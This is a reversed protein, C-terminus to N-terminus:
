GPFCLTWLTNGFDGTQQSVTRLQINGKADAEIKLTLTGGGLIDGRPVDAWEVAITLDDKIEGRGVNNWQRGLISPSGARDAMGNWWVIKDVQRLYYIGGDDGAWSGTVNVKEADFTRANPECPAGQAITPRPTIAASSAVTPAPSAGVPSPAATAAAGSCGVLAFALVLISATLRALM